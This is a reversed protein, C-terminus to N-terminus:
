RGHSSRRKNREVSVYVMADEVEQPTPRDIGKSKLLAYAENRIDDMGSGSRRSRSNSDNPAAAGSGDSDDGLGYKGLIANEGTAPAREGTEYSQRTDLDMVKINRDRDTFRSLRPRPDPRLESRLRIEEMNGETRIRDEDRLMQLYEPMGRLPTLPQEEGARNRRVPLFRDPFQRPDAGVSVASAARERTPDLMYRSQATRVDLPDVDLIDGEGYVLRTAQRQNVLGTNLVDNFRQRSAAGEAAAKARGVTRAAEIPDPPTPRLSREYMDGGEDPLVRIAGGYGSGQARMGGGGVRRESDMAREFRSAPVDYRRSPGRFAM